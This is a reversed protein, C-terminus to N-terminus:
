MVLNPTSFINILFFSFFVRCVCNGGGVKEERECEREGKGV